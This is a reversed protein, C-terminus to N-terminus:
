SLCKESVPSLTHVFTCQLTTIGCVSLGCFGTTRHRGNNDFHGFFYLFSGFLYSIASIKQATFVPGVTDGLTGGLFYLFLNWCIVSLLYKPLHQDKERCQFRFLVAFFEAVTLGNFTLQATQM